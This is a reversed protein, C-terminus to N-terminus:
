NPTVKLRAFQPSAGTLTYSLEGDSPPSVVASTNILNPDGVLVNTWTQLDSSTQVVFQIGYQDSNINGGNPWTVKKTTGNIAPNTALGTVNMFYAVGNAVGDNNTDESPILSISNAGAWSAYGSKVLKLTTGDVTLGYGGIPAHLTPTGTIGSSTTLIYSNLTPTGIIKITGASLNYTSTSATPSAIDFALSASSSVTIPSKQSGGVLALTGQSVATAGTYTNAGKLTLTGLGQKTLGGTYTSNAAMTINAAPVTAGYGFDGRILRIIPKQTYDNGPNTIVFGTINGAANITPVASAGSGTTDGSATDREILV